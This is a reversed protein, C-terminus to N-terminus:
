TGYLTLNIVRLTGVINIALTGGFVHVFGKGLGGPPQGQAASRAILVWGRIFAVLGIIRIIMTLPRGILSDGGFLADITSNPSSVPQYALVSEYGFSSKMVVAFATPFYIFVASVILYVVPEKISSNSAMMTRAEGYVKLTYIAKFLFAVGMLYAGGTLLREVPALSNAINMIVNSQGSIWDAVGSAM